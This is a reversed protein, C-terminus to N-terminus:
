LEFLLGGYFWGSGVAPTLCLDGRHFVGKELYESVATPISASGTNARTEFTTIFREPAIGLRERVAGHIPGTGPHPVFWDIRDIKLGNRALLRDAVTVNSAIGLEVLEPKSKIWGLPPRVTVAEASEGASYLVSDILGRGDGAGREGRGRKELVAAGAADGVVLGGKSGPRVRRSFYESCVVVATRWSPNAVLLAAAIQVAHVFGTCAGCVDFALARSAGLRLAVQPAVEPVLQRESWNGLVLLDVEGSERGARDLAAASARAAMFDITEDDAAVHRSRVEVSGIVARDVRDGESGSGSDNDFTNYVLTRPYYHGFGTFGLGAGAWIGGAELLDGNM